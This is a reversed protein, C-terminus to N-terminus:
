VIKQIKCLCAKYEPIASNADGADVTLDNARSGQGLGRDGWHWPIAVVGPAVRQYATIGSDVRARFGKGFQTSDYGVKTRGIEDSTSNGRATIVNVLDGHNINNARADVPNIEIWPEPEAEVNWPNNRTTPGGQFHEVCRITTLVLPYLSADAQRGAIPTDAKVLDWQATGKTNRGWAAALDARPTEYPETYSPFRGPVIHRTTPGALAVDPKDVLRHITRYWRSYNLTATNTSVFLRSVSDPSMFWDGMDGPIEGNNYFVRRNVLWSYGWGGYAKTGRYDYTNVIAGDRNDRNKARNYTKWEGISPHAWTGNYETGSLATGFGGTYIWLTGGAAVGSMSERYVRECVAESGSLVTSPATPADATGTWKQTYADSWTYGEFATGSGPSWGFRNGYLHDYASGTVSYTQRTWEAEIHSFANAGDLAYALRLLLELDAKSNGRPTTARERWQLTRASNTVSGAEEVHSCAPILYTVGDTKRKCAATETEYMDVVVLTDLNELGARVASQNPETVAPNQGWVVAAKTYGGAAMQRFMTIHDDGNGKPWLDYLGDIKARGTVATEWAPDAFWRRTMNYFGRQQLDMVSSGYANNYTGDNLSYYSVNRPAGSAATGCLPAGWLADMYKGFANTPNGSADTSMTTPNASYAPINGYLLGMDTSGQVNHIGRLANIGGGARGMNGLLTQLNAFGKIGTSGTTHQTMGMAYLITTCRYGAIRPDADSGAAGYPHAIAGAAPPFTGASSHRSNAILIGVLYDVDDTTCGCIDAAVAPTYPAVHAKLRNFVTNGNRCDDSKKPFSSIVLDATETTAEAGTSAVMKTFREYDADNNVLFRADTYKSCQGSAVTTVYKSPYNADGDTHFVGAGKQNLYAWFKTAAPDGAEIRAIIGRIVANQLAIDTGPRIRIHKDAQRATRTQRPDVVVLTHGTNGTDAQHKRAANIHAFCAPHNEAPNAGWVLVLSANDMDTWSNTM